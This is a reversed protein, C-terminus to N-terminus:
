QNQPTAIWFPKQGLLTDKTIRDTCTPHEDQFVCYIFSDCGQVNWKQHSLCATGVCVRHKQNPKGPVPHFAHSEPNDYNHLYAVDNFIPSEDSHQRWFQKMIDVAEPWWNQNDLADSRRKRKKAVFEVPENRYKYVTSCAVGLMLSVAEASGKLDWDINSGGLLIKM